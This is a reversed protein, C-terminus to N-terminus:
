DSLWSELELVLKKKKKLYAKEVHSLSDESEFLDEQRQRSLAPTL